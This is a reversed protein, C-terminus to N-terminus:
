RRTEGPEIAESNRARFGDFGCVASLSRVDGGRDGDAVAVTITAKHVDLGVFLINNM